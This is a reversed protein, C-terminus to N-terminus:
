GFNISLSNAKKLMAIILGCNVFIRPSFTSKFHYIQNKCTLSHIPVKHLRDTPLQPFQALPQVPHVRLNTGVSLNEQNSLM